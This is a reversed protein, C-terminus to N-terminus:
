AGAAAAAGDAPSAIGLLDLIENFLAGAQLDASCGVPVLGSHTMDIFGVLDNLRTATEQMGLRALESAAYKSVSASPKYGTLVVRAPIPRGLSEATSEVLGMTRKTELIDRDSLGCPILVLDARMFTFLTAQAGTGPTDVVLLDSDAKLEKITPGMLHEAHEFRVASVPVKFKRLWQSLAQTTEDTDLAAVRLGRRLAHHLLMTAITTKGAGGKTSAITIVKGM